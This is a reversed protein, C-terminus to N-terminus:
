AVQTVDGGYMRVEAVAFLSDSTMGDEPCTAYGMVLHLELGPVAEGDDLMTRRATEMLREAAVAAGDATAEMLIMTYGSEKYAGIVDVDRAHQALGEGLRQLLRDTLFTGFRERLLRLNTAEIVCISVERKYRVARTLERQLESELKRADFVSRVVDIVGQERASAADRLNASACAIHDALLRVQAPAMTSDGLVVLAGIREGANEMPAVCVAGVTLALAADVARKQGISPGFFEPFPLIVPASADLAEAIAPTGKPDIKGQFLSTGLADTARQHSRRRLDSAPAKYVLCGDQEEFFVFAFPANLGREAATCAADVLWDQTMASHVTLLSSMMAAVPDQAKAASGRERANREKMTKEGM